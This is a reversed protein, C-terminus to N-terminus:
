GWSLTILKPNALPTAFHGEPVIKLSGVKLPKISLPNTADDFLESTSISVEWMWTLAKQKSLYTLLKLILIFPSVGELAAIKVFEETEIAEVLVDNVLELIATVVLTLLSCGLVKKDRESGKSKWSDKQCDFNATM